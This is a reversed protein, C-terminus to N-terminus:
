LVFVPRICDPDSVQDADFYLTTDPNAFFRKPDAMTTYSYSHKPDAMTTYSYSHEPDAMTTYSYSHKPDAM